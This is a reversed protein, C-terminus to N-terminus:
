MRIAPRYYFGDSYFAVQGSITEERYPVNTNHIKFSNEYVSSNKLKQVARNIYFFSM